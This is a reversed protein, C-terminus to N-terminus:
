RYRPIIRRTLYKLMIIGVMRQVRAQFTISYVNIVTKVLINPDAVRQILLTPITM